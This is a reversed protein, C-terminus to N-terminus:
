AHPVLRRKQNGSYGRTQASVIRRLSYAASHGVPPAGLVRYWKAPSMDPDGNWGAICAAGFDDGAVIMTSDPFGDPWHESPQGPITNKGTRIIETVLVDAPDEYYTILLGANPSVMGTGGTGIKDVPAYEKRFPVVTGPDMGEAQIYRVDADEGLMPLLFADLMNAVFGAVAFQGLFAPTIITDDTAVPLVIVCRNGNAGIGISLMVGRDSTMPPQSM